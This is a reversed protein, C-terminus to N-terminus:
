FIEYDNATIGFEDIPGILHTRLTDPLKLNKEMFTKIYVSPAKAKIDKKNLEDEVITINVIHNYYAAELNPHYKKMFAKPFFRHYNKSLSVKLWKNDIRVDLNSKFSKPKQMAFLCLIAKIFSRGTSFYGGNKIAEASIDISWEYKPLEGALIKDIKEVDQALKSEM